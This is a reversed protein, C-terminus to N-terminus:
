HECGRLHKLTARRHTGVLDRVAGVALGMATARLRQPPRWKPQLCRAPPAAGDHGLVASCLVVVEKGNKPAEERKM